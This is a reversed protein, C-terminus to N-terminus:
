DMLEKLTLIIYEANKLTKGTLAFIANSHSVIIVHEDENHKKYLDALLMVFMWMRQRCAYKSEVSIWAAPLDPLSDTNWITFKKKLAPKSLRDNCLQGGGLQELLNDHVYCNQAGTEEFIEEGTEICRTLPSSWIDIIDLPALAEGTKKAQIKGQETLPADEYDKNTFVSDGFTHFAVNHTAEGHRVFIFKPPM